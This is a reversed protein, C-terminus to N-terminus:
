NNIKVNGCLVETYTYSLVNKPTTNLEVTFVSPYIDKIQGDFKVIRRRGKNVQLKISKGKLEALKNKVDEITRNNRKMNKLVM